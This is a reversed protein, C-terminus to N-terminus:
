RNRSVQLRRERVHRAVSHRGRGRGLQDGVVRRVVVVVVVVMVVVGPVVGVVGVGLVLRGHGPLVAGM